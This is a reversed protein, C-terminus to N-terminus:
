HIGILLQPLCPEARLTSPVSEHKDTHATLVPKAWAPGVSQRLASRGGGDALVGLYWPNPALARWAGWTM